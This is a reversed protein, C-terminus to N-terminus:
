SMHIAYPYKLSVERLWFGLTENVYFIFLVKMCIMFCCAVLATRCAMFLVFRSTAYTLRASEYKTQVVGKLIQLNNMHSFVMLYSSADTSPCYLDYHEPYPELSCSCFLGIILNSSSSHNNSSQTRLVGIRHPLHTLSYSTRFLNM